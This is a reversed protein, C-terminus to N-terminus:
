KSERDKFTDKIKHEVQVHHVVGHEEEQKKGSIVQPVKRVQCEPTSLAPQYRFWTSGSLNTPLLKASHGM